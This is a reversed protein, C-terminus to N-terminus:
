RTEDTTRSMAEGVEIAWADASFSLGSPAEGFWLLAHRAMAVADDAFRCTGPDASLLGCSTSRPRWESGATLRRMSGTTGLLLLNLATTHGGLRRCTTVAGGDFRLPEAGAAVRHPTGDISLEVGAGAAITFWREVGSYDSFPGDTDIEALGVRVRWAADTPWSLLDRSVGGGNKWPQPAVSAATVLFPAPM